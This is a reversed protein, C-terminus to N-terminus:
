RPTAVMVMKRPHLSVTCRSEIIDLVKKQHPQIERIDGTEYDRIFEVPNNKYHELTKNSM